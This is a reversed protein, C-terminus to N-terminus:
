ATAVRARDEVVKDAQKGTLEQLHDFSQTFFGIGQTLSRLELILDHLESQPIMASVDEWAKWGEKPAFGLIQGRRSTILRQIKSTYANPVCLTVTYIPELLVPSCQPMGERMAAQAAKKFSMESSDVAHYGGDNLVVSIDVVPFGLPGQQMYEVVGREVAPIYQKPVVGGTITDDFSFGTGRPLPKIEIHVDGFEGHGGSQKRHRAHQHIPKRISERYAVRPQDANVDLGFRDKMKEIAIKLHMDGQGLLLLQNTTQDQEIRLSPDEDQLKQLAATLKVEDDRHVATISKGYMAPLTDPWFNTKHKGDTTLTQGITTHDLRGLAVVQGTTASILKEHDAGMIKQIGSIREGNLQAGDKIEGSWVRVYSMKGAHTTHVCKFVQALGEADKIGLRDRTEEVEPSDHRLAKLLRTIGGRHECSGFFVPVIRDDAIDKQINDYIEDKPPEVDELIEELLHDDFDALAELLEGRASQEQEIQTEPMSILESREGDRWKYAKESVLDIYGTIERGDRIPIERLILPRESVDQLAGIVNSVSAEPQDMKNIFIMHPINQEDLFKMIPAILIAKEPSPECVVIAIDCVMLANLTDQMFEVSGPCDIFTWEEDLYTTTALSIQTSMNHARAEPNADAVTNGQNVNGKRHIAGTTFLFEELLSTKGSLYAGVIACCRPKSHPKSM